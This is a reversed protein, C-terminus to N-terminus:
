CSRIFPVVAPVADFAQILTREVAERRQALVRSRCLLEDAYGPGARHWLETFAAAAAVAIFRRLPRLPVRRAAMGNLLAGVEASNWDLAASTDDCNCLLALLLATEDAARGPWAKEEYELLDLYDVNIRHLVEALFDAGM